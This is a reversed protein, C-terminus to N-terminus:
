RECHRSTSILFLLINMHHTDDQDPITVNQTLLYFMLICLDSHAGTPEFYNKLQVAKM